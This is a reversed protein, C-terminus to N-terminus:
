SKSECDNESGGGGSGFLEFGVAPTAIGANGGDTSGGLGSFFIGDVSDAECNSEGISGAIRLEMRSCDAM